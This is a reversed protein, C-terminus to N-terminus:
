FTLNAVAQRGSVAGVAVRAALTTTNPDFGVSLTDARLLKEDPPIRTDNSQLSFIQDRTRNIASVLAASLGVSHRRGVTLGIITQLGGGLNPAFADSGPTQLLLKIFQQVLKELGKLSTFTQGAEFRLISAREPSPTSALVSLKRINSGVQSDPIQAVIKSNSMKVFEPSPIDNIWVEDAQLLKNGTIELSAPLFGPVTVVRIVPLIDKISLIKIDIM